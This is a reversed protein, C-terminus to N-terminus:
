LSYTANKKVRKYLIEPHFITSILFSFSTIENIRFVPTTLLNNRLYTLHVFINNDMGNGTLFVLVNVMGESFNKIWLRM